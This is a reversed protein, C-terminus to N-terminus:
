AGEEQAVARLGELALTLLDPDAPNDHYVVYAPRQAEVADEVRFLQGAEILPGVVRLPFYGSGGQQLIHQLGLAGLGVSVAPTEMAPYAQAHVERFADGWDVFVYDERWGPTVRRQETAVLVLTEEFLMEVRLGAQRRPQYMVGIDILGDALQRMQSTSYDADVRIAVGPAAERMWPIWPLILRDWLSVQAALAFVNSYGQPLTVAQHAQYWLQQMNLAYRRFQQGAATLAVGARHRRFLPMGFHDELGKVRASVTSQTVNLAEAARHFNGCGAVELFTRISETNM